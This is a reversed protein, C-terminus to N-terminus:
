VCPNPDDIHVKNLEDLLDKSLKIKLCGLNDKLQFLKTVGFISSTVFPRNLM